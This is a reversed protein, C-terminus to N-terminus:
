QSRGEGDTGVSDSIPETVAAIEAVQQPTFPPVDPLDEELPVHRPTLRPIAKRFLKWGRREWDPQSQPSVIGDPFVWGESIDQVRRTCGNYEIEDGVQWRYPEPAQPQIDSAKRYLKWGIAEFWQQHAPVHEILLRGRGGSAWRITRVVGDHEVEDGVQWQYPEPAPEAPLEGLKKTVEVATAKAAEVLQAASLVTPQMSQVFSKELDAWKQRAEDREAKVTELEARLENVVSLSQMQESRQAARAESADVRASTVDLRASRLETDVKHLDDALKGLAWKLPWLSVWELLHINLRGYMDDLEDLARELENEVVSLGALMDVSEESM